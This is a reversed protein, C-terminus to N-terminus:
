HVLVGIPALDKDSSFIIECKGPRQARVDVTLSTMGSRASNLAIVRLVDGPSGKTTFCTSTPSVVLHPSSVNAVVRAVDREGLILTLNKPTVNIPAAFAVIPVLAAVTAVMFSFRM